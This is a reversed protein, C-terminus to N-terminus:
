KLLVTSSSASDVTLLVTIEIIEGPNTLVIKDPHM